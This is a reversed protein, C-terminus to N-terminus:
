DLVNFSRDGIRKFFDIGSIGNERHFFINFHLFTNRNILLHQDEVFHNEPVPVDDDTVYEEGISFRAM